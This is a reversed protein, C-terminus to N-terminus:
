QTERLEKAVAEQVRQYTNERVPQEAAGRQITAVGENIADNVPGRYSILRDFVELGQRAKEAIAKSEPVKIVNGVRSLEAPREGKSVFGFLRKDTSLRNRVYAELRAAAVANSESVPGFLGGTTETSGAYTARRALAEIEVYSLGGGKAQQRKLLELMGRQATKDAIQSIAIGTREPLKGTVVQDFISDDLNALRSGDSVLESGLSIGEQLLHDPGIGTDRMFKAVDIASAHGSAINRYAGFARAAQYSPANLERAEIESTGTRRAIELRHHGDVVYSKGDAPDKWFTIPGESLEPKFRAAGTKIASRMARSLETRFQFRQPDAVINQRSVKLVPGLAAGQGAPAKAVEPPKVAEPIPPPAAIASRAAQAKSFLGEQGGAGTERFLPSEREMEGTAASVNERPATFERGLEEGQFRGAAARNELVAQGLGPLTVGPEPPAAVEPLTALMGRGLPFSLPNRETARREIGNWRPGAETPSVPATTAQGEAGQSFDTVKAFSPMPFMSRPPTVAGPEPPGLPPALYPAAPTPEALPLRKGLLKIAGTKLLTEFPMPMGIRVAGFDGGGGSVGGYLRPTPLIPGGAERRAQEKLMQRAQILGSQRQTVDRFGPMRRDLAENMARYVEKKAGKLDSFEESTGKFLPQNSRMRRRLNHLEALPVEAPHAALYRTAWAEIRDAIEPHGLGRAQDMLPKVAKRVIPELPEPPAEKSAALTRRITANYEALSKSLNGVLGKTFWGGKRSVALPGEAVLARAPSSVPPMGKPEPGLLSQALREAM